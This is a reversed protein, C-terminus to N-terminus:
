IEERVILKTKEMAFMIAGGLVLIAISLFTFAYWVPPYGNSGTLNLHNIEAFSVPSIWYIWQLKNPYYYPLSGLLMLMGAVVIGTVRQFLLNFLYVVLGLVVSVMFFLAMELLFAEGATCLELFRADVVINGFIPIDSVAMTRMLSGWENAIGMYGYTFLGPGLALVLTYVVSGCIIYTIQSLGFIKKGSRTIVFQQNRDIFPADCFLLLVGANLIIRGMGISNCYLIPFLSFLNIGSGIQKAQSVMGDMQHWYNTLIFLLLIYYRPNTVWKRFNQNVIARIKKITKM